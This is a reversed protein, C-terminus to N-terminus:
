LVAVLYLAVLTGLWGQPSNMGAHPSIQLAGM